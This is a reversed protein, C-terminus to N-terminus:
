YTGLVGHSEKIVSVRTGTELKPNRIMTGFYKRKNGIEQHSILSSAVSFQREMQNEGVPIEAQSHYVDIFMNANATNAADSKPIEGYLEERWSTLEQLNAPVLTATGGPAINTGTFLRGQDDSVVLREFRWEFGNSVKLADSGAAAVTIRGREAQLSKTHFQTKTRARLWGSTLHQSETWDITGSEFQSGTPWMPTIMVDSSFKLGGSPTTGGYMSQRSMTISQQLGQDVITISRLRAKIDFGHSFAAFAFLAVSTVIALGPVTIILLNLLNRKALVYYNVPGILLTFLTIFCLFSMVPISEIGPILFHTFHDHGARGSTGHRAPWNLENSSNTGTLFWFWEHYSGPFPQNPFVGLQGLGVKRIGIVDNVVGWKLDGPEFANKETRPSEETTMQIPNGYRDQKPKPTFILTDDRLVHWTESQTSRDVETVSLVKSNKYGSTGAETLVLTGGLRMWALLAERTELSLGELTKLSVFVLDLGSYALPVNPLASPDIVYHNEPPSGGWYSTPVKINIAEELAKCDVQDSSIVLVGPRHAEHNVEALSVSKALDRLQGDRSSYFTLTGTSMQGVMPVLLSFSTTANQACNVTRTVTPLGPGDPTFTVRIDRTEARNQLKIRIPYYGGHSCGAWRWDMAVVLDAQRGQAENGSSARSDDVLVVSLVLLGGVLVSLLWRM